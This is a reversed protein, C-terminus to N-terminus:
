RLLHQRHAALHVALCGVFGIGALTHWRKNGTAALALTAALSALMGAKAARNIRMRSSRPARKAPTSLEAEVCRELQAEMADPDALAADYHLVLSGGAANIRIALVGPLGSLAAHLRELRGPVGLARDRVRIRGPIAAVIRTM